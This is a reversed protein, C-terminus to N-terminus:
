AKMVVNKIRDGFLRCANKTTVEAVEAVDVEKIRAIEWITARVDAPWCTTGKVAALAPADSELLLSSLPLTKVLQPFSTSPKTSATTATKTTPDSFSNPTTHTPQYEPSDRLLIPPVSFFAGHITATKYAQSVSGDFAHFLTKSLMSSGVQAGGGEGAIGVDFTPGGGENSFYQPPLITNLDWTKPLFSEPNQLVAIAHKGANRSHVNLPLNLSRAVIAQIALIQRQTDKIIDITLLPEAADSTPSSASSSPVRKPSRQFKWENQPDQHLRLTADLVWPSFDLGVEGIGVIRDRCEYMLEFIGKKAGMVEEEKENMLKLSADNTGDLHMGEMTLTSEMDGWSVSVNEGTGPHKQVPHVGVCVLM